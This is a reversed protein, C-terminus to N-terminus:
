LASDLQLRNLRKAFKTGLRVKKKKEGIIAGDRHIM